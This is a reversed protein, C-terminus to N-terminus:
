DVFGMKERIEKPFKSIKIKNIEKYDYGNKDDTESYNVLWL